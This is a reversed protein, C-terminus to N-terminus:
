CSTLYDSPCSLIFSLNEPAEPMARELTAREMSLSKTDEDQKDEALFLFPKIYLHCLAVRWTSQLNPSGSSLYLTHRLSCPHCDLVRLCLPSEKKKGDQTKYCFSYCQYGDVTMKQPHSSHSATLTQYRMVCFDSM